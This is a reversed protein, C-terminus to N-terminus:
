LSKYNHLPAEPSIHWKRTMTGVRSRSLLCNDLRTTSYQNYHEEFLMNQTELSTMPSTTHEQSYDSPTRDEQACLESM